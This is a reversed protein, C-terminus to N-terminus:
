IIYHLLFIEGQSAASSFANLQQGPLHLHLSGEQLVSGACGPGRPWISVRLNTHRLSPLSPSLALFAEPPDFWM